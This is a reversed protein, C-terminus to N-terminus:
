VTSVDFGKEGPDDAPGAAESGSSCAALGLSTLSIAALAALKRKM